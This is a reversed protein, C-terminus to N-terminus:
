GTVAVSLSDDTLTSVGNPSGAPEDPPTAETPTEPEPTPEDPIIDIDKVQVDIDDYQLRKEGYRTRCLWIVAQLIRPDDINLGTLDSYNLGAQVKLQTAEKTSLEGPDFDYVEDGVKLKM